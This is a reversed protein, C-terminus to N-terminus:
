HQSSLHVIMQIANFWGYLRYGYRDWKMFNYVGATSLLWLRMAMTIIFSLIWDICMASWSGHLIYNMNWKETKVCKFQIARCRHANGWLYACSNTFYLRACRLHSTTVINGSIKNELYFSRIFPFIYINMWQTNRYSNNLPKATATASAFYEEGDRM